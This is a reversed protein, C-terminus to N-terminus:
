ILRRTTAIEYRPYFIGVILWANPYRLQNGVFFHTDNLRIMDSEYRERFKTEWAERYRRKWSRFSELMEWDTCSLKHGKCTSHDCRFKYEFTFPIKELEHKPAKEFMSYRRLKALEDPSWEPTDPSIILRTIERPKFLGLTPYGREAAERKVCCLCHSTLPGVIEKRAVWNNDSSVNNRIRISDIDPTYSEPRPDQKAKTVAVDIWQYKAFRKDVDMRRYPVPYLRIWRHDDTIGATCSVEIGRRAPVPYTRVTILVRKQESM